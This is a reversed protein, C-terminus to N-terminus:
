TRPRITTQLSVKLTQASSTEGGVNFVLWKVGGEAKIATTGALEITLVSDSKIKAEVAATLEELIEEIAVGSTGDASGLTPVPEFGGGSKRGGDSETTSVVRTRIPM